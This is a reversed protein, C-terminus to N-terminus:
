LFISVGLDIVAKGRMQHEMNKEIVRRKGSYSVLAGKRYNDIM